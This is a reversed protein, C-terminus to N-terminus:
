LLQQLLKKQWKKQLHNLISHLEPSNKEESMDTETSSSKEESPQEIKVADASEVSNAKLFESQYKRYDDM